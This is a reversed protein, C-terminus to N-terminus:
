SVIVSIEGNRALWWANALVLNLLGAELHHPWGLRPTSPRTGCDATSDMNQAGPALGKTIGLCGSGLPQIVWIPHSLVAPPTPDGSPLGPFAFTAPILQLGHVQVSQCERWVGVISM